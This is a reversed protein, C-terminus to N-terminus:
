KYFRPEKVDLDLKAKLGELSERTLQALGRYFPHVAECELIGLYHPAWTLLHERLYAPLLDGKHEAVWAMLSLMTGIHDEPEGKDEAVKIRNERMWRRLDLTSEGFIVCDRDTYVSGWPPAVLHGPGVFLRRYEWILDDDIVAHAAVGDQEDVQEGAAPAGDSTADNAAAGAAGEAVSGEAGGGALAGCMLALADRVRAVVDDGREAVLPWERAAADVELQALADFRGGAEAHSPDTSFLPGLVQGLFVAADCAEQLRDDM